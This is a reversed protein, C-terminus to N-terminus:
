LPAKALRTVLDDLGPQNQGKNGYKMPLAFLVFRERDSGTFTALVASKEDNYQDVYFLRREQRTGVTVSGRDTSQAVFGDVAAKAAAASEFSYFRFAFADDDPSLCQWRALWGDLARLAGESRPSPLWGPIGTCDTGRGPGVRLIEADRTQGGAAASSTQVAEAPLMGPFAAVLAALDQHGRPIDREYPKPDQAGGLPWFWVAGAIATVCVAVAVVITAFRRSKRGSVAPRPAATLHRPPTPLGSRARAGSVSAATPPLADARDATPDNRSSAWRAAAAFEACSDFRDAPRKSLARALVADLAVPLDPRHARPSPPPAQLHGQIVLVPNTAEFPTVGTLLSYLTCALSYQDARHDLYAGTLQEPSAYTLTATFTGTQTLHHVDDRPRAIGFDTLLVREQGDTGTLLINAPKVDRHLVGNGHAHDLAAATGEIIRLAREAPVPHDIAAADVGDVFQMSIWLRGDDVGRDYVTVINPHELRAALDAEREFRARIENDSFLEPNLLKLAIQRPLRPHRALYVSGMGGRGLQREIAYGAFVDGTALM